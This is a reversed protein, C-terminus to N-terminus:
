PNLGQPQVVVTDKWCNWAIIDLAKVFSPHWPHLFAALFTEAIVFTEVSPSTSADNGNASPVEVQRFAPVPDEGHLWFPDEGDDGHRDKDGGVLHPLTLVPVM